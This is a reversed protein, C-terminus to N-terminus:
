EVPKKTLIILGHQAEEGYIAIAAASDFSYYNEKKSNGSSKLGRVTELFIKYTIEKGDYIVIPFNQHSDSEICEIMGALPPLSYTEILFEERLEDENLIYDEQDLYRVYDKESNIKAEDYSVRIVNDTGVLDRPIQLVFKGNGSTYTSLMKNITFITIKVNEVPIEEKGAVIKGRFYVFRNSEDKKSEKRKKKTESKLDVNSTAVEVTYVKSSDTCAPLGVTLSSALMLGAAVKSYPFRFSKKEPELNFLPTHLQKNTVRACINGDSNKMIESIELQSLKTFDIVNKSCSDCFSGRENPTMNEWKEDCPKNLTLFKTKM